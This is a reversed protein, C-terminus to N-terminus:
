RGIEEANSVVAPLTGTRVAAPLLFLVSPRTVETSVLPPVAEVVGDRRRLDEYDGWEIARLPCAAVCV